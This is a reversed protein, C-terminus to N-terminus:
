SLEPAPAKPTFRAEMDACVELLAKGLREFDSIENYIQASVRTWWHGNHHYIASYVGHVEFLQRDFERATDASSLIQGPLPLKINVMCGILEDNSEMGETHLIEALRRGGKVALDHCYEIIREEGGLSARFDLASGITLALAVDTSGNWHFESAFSSMTYKGEEPELWRLGAPLNHRIMHQNREPVYLLGSGRKAYLWKSCNAVWFDPRTDNLSIKLEQGLSHAADVISLVGEEECVRVMERWPMVVGPSSVISDFLAVIKSVGNKLGRIHARFREVILGHSEPFALPFTSLRPSSNKIGPLTTVNRQIQSFATPTHILIDGESWSISQLIVYIGHTANPIIVCEDDDADVLVALRRRIRSVHAGLKRRIFLDPNREVEETISNYTKQISYPLAGFSGHNLHVFESDIMFEPLISHGYPAM